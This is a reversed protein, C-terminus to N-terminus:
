LPMDETSGDKKRVLVVDGVETVALLKRDEKTLLVVWSSGYKKVTKPIEM